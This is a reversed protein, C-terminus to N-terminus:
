HISEDFDLHPWGVNWFVKYIFYYNAALNAIMILSMTFGMWTVKQQIDRLKRNIEDEETDSGESIIEDPNDIKTEEQKNIDALDMGQNERIKSKILQSVGATTM